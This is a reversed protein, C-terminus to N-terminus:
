DITNNYFINILRWGCKRPKLDLRLVPDSPRLREQLLKKQFGIISQLMAGDQIETPPIVISCDMFDAVADMLEREGQAQFAAQNFVQSLPFLLSPFNPHSLILIIDLTKKYQQSTIYIPRNGQCLNLGTRSYNVHEISFNNQM